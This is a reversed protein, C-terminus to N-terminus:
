ILRGQRRQRFYASWYAYEELDEPTGWQLFHEFGYVFVSLGDGVMLQFVSSIYFEGNININKHMLLDFYKKLSSGRRFYYTGSSHYSDMKNETFSFKERIELMRNKEDIRMGAYVNNWLLHPHFGTYGPVCGDCENRAITQKFDQYNWCASFDCYNVVVQENESILDYAQKVAYVPGLKHPAISVIQSQPRIRKLTDELPTSALHEQNCIFVYEDESSFLDVVHEIMPKGDVPILPKIDRYGAKQFRKGVGSMPIIVKM